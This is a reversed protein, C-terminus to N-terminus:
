LISPGAAFFAALEPDRLASALESRSLVLLEVGPGVEVTVTGPKEGWDPQGGVASGEGLTTRTGDGHRLTLHGTLVVAAQTVHQGATILTRPRSTRLPTALRRLRGWARRSLALHAPPESHQRRPRGMTLCRSPFQGPTWLNTTHEADPM